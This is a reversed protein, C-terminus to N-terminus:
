GLFDKILNVLDKFGLNLKKNRIYRHVEKLQELVDPDNVNYGGKRAADLFQKNQVGNNNPRYNSALWVSM